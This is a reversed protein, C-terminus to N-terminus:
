VQVLYLFRIKVPKLFQSKKKARLIKFCEKKLVYKIIGITAVTALSVVSLAEPLTVLNLIAGHDCFHM